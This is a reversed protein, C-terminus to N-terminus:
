AVPTAVAGREAGSASPLDPLGPEYLWESFLADLEAGSIEECLRSHDATVRIKFRPECGMRGDLAADLM